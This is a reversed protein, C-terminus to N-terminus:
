KIKYNEIPKGTLKITKKNSYMLEDALNMADNFFGDSKYFASGFSFSVGNELGEYFASHINKIIQNKYKPKTFLAFEDGGIRYFDSNKLFYKSIIRTTEILLLDGAEHGKIDNTEKLFNIDIITIIIDRKHEIKSIANDYLNRNYIGTLSDTIYMNVVLVMYYFILSIATTSWMLFNMKLLIELLISMVLLIIIIFICLREKQKSFSHKSVPSIILIFLYIISILFPFLFLFGRNYKNSENISFIIGNFMSFFCIIVNIILPIYLYKSPKKQKFINFLLLPIIPSSAFNIFSTIRRILFAYEFNSFETSFIFDVAVACVTILNIVIAIVFYKKQNKGFIPNLIVFFLLLVLSLLPIFNAYFVIKNM